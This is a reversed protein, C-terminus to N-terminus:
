KINFKLIGFNIIEDHDFALKPLDNVSFWKTEKADESANAPTDKAVFGIFAVSVV